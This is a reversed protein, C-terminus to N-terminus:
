DLKAGPSNSIASPAHLRQRASAVMKVIVLTLGCYTSACGSGYAVPGQLQKLALSIGPLGAASLSGM